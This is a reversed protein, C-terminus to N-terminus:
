STPSLWFLVSLSSKMFIDVTQVDPQPWSHILSYVTSGKTGHDIAPGEKSPLSRLCQWVPPSHFLCAVSDHAEMWTLDRSSDSQPSTGPPPPQSTVSQSLLKTQSSPLTRSTFMTVQAEHWRVVCKFSTVIGLHPPVATLGLGQLCLCASRCSNM